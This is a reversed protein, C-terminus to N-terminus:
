PSLTWFDPSLVHNCAFSELTEIVRIREAPNVGALAYQTCAYMRFSDRAHTEVSAAYLARRVANIADRESRPLNRVPRVPDPLM